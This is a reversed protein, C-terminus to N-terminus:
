GQIPPPLVRRGARLDAIRKVLDADQPRLEMLRAFVTEASDRDGLTLYTAAQELRISVINHDRQVLYLECGPPIQAFHVGKNLLLASFVREFVQAAPQVSRHLHPIGDDALIAKIVEGRYIGALGKLYHPYMRGPVDDYGNTTCLQDFYEKFTGKVDFPVLNGFVGVEPTDELLMYLRDLWEEDFFWHDDHLLIYRQYDPVRKLINDFNALDHGTNPRPLVYEPTFTDIYREADPDFGNFGVALDFRHRNARFAANFCFQRLNSWTRESAAICVITERM